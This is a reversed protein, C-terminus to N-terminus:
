YSAITRECAKYCFSLGGEKIDNQLEHRCAGKFCSWDWKVVCRKLKYACWDVAVSRAVPM